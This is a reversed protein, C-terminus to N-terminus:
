LTLYTLLHGQGRSHTYLTAHTTTQKFQSFLKGDDEYALLQYAVYLFHEDRIYM